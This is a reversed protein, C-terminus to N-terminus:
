RKESTATPDYEFGMQANLEQVFKWAWAKEALNQKQWETVEETMQESM